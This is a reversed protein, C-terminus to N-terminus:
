LSGSTGRPGVRDFHIKTGHAGMTGFPGKAGQPELTYCNVGQDKGDGFKWFILILIRLVLKTIFLAANKEPRPDM